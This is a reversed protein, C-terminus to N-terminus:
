KGFDTVAAITPIYRSDYIAERRAIRFLEDFVNQLGNCM